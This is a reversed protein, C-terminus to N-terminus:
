WICLGSAILAPSCTMQPKRTELVHRCRPTCLGERENVHFGWLRMRSFYSNRMILSWQPGINRQPINHRTGDYCQQQQAFLSSGGRHKRFGRKRWDLRKAGHLRTFAINPLPREAKHTHHLLGTSLTFDACRAGLREVMCSTVNKSVKLNTPFEWLM